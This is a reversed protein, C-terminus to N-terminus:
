LAEELRKEADPIRLEGSLLKPLLTDRIQALDEQEPTSRKDFMPRATRFFAELILDHDPFVLPENKLFIKTQFNSIGTSQNQYGWTKGLAYIRGLHMAAYLGLLSSRPRLKRCFSAPVVAGGLLELYNQTIYASRGTPQKPSGGSVELVIDGDELERSQFKKQEVWRSPVKGRVGANASEIDTGRIIVVNLGHKEDQEGKGWDGGITSEILDGFPKVEWGEPMWGMEESFVFRSPFHDEIEGPLPKRQDGLARRAEARKHLPEPIPNGAALAKDIVPDFDLFWSKFLAQAIAELTTNMQRNQEIKDDLSKAVTLIRQREYAPPISITLNQIVGTDLKGAGIGTNEVLGLLRQEEAMFWFLLYWPELIDPNVWLAKVDQNFAVDREAIGVRIKQHLISGRVLLLISGAPALRTGSQLGLETVRLKSDYYRNGDMSSASIWPIDGGWYQDDSKSPTGGSSWKAIEGLRYQKWSSGM